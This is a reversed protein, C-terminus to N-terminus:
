DEVGYQKLKRYLTKRDFGLIRAAITKNGGAAQLVHLVYRQEVAEMPVLESPDDGGIFVQSSRFDCIKDPLDEVAIKEYRTLAVAREIVNRLERVNGPWSYALLKGGAQESVGQVSKGARQAYTEVFKRALLLIDTGRSRLPPLELQIVDIRYYLDDRFRKEEIAAELDRNTAALVRVDFPLEKDGGVPRVKNEELARLLKVQMAIPMEGLEDLLLTGGQAQLFLGKREARADTFAGKAHGFLESELLAEPLASCNVAVFPQQRRRSQKHLSRAVLEKGTGSEGTILVSADSDAIRTLQDYLRQMPRSEGILEGFSAAHDVADSLMKVQQQLRRHKVARELLMALLDMEIPKTVFDYAGARIAAVATELSGFGTMVVVPIDPRNAAIQECLQLGSAGPMKVDTLVVDFAEEKLAAFAEAASTFWRVTFGRLRLDAEVMECMSREDDVVLINGSM